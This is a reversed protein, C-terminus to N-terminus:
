LESWVFAIVLVGIILALQYRQAGSIGPQELYPRFQDEPRSLDKAASFLNRIADPLGYGPLPGTMTPNRWVDGSILGGSLQQLIGDPTEAQQDYRDPYASRQVRQAIQGPTGSQDVTKAVEFFKRAAYEPNLIQSASGWGQSPRQQFVGLSDRDGYNLNRFRSEVWAARFAAILQKWSAGVSQGVNYITQAISLQERSLSM